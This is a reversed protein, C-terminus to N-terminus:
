AAKRGRMKIYQASGKPEAEGRRVALRRQMEKARQEPTMSAWYSKVGRKKKAIIAPTQQPAKKRLKKVVPAEVMGALQLELATIEQSMMDRLYRMGPLLAAMGAQAYEDITRPNKM